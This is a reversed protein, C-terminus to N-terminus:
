RQYPHSVRDIDIKMKIGSQLQQGARWRKDIRPRRDTSLDGVGEPSLAGARLIGDEAEISSLAAGVPALYATGLSQAWRISVRPPPPPQNSSPPNSSSSLTHQIASIVYDNLMM